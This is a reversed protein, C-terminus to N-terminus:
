IFWHNYWTVCWCKNRFQNCQVKDGCSKVYRYFKYVTDRKLSDILVSKFQIIGELGIEDICFNVFEDETMKGYITLYPYLQFLKNRLIFKTSIRAAELSHSLASSMCQYIFQIKSHSIHQGNAVIANLLQDYQALTFASRCWNDILVHCYHSVCKDDSDDKIDLILGDIIDSYQTMSFKCRYVCRELTVWDRSKIFHSLIRSSGLSFIASELVSPNNSCYKIINNELDEMDNGWFSVTDISWGIM